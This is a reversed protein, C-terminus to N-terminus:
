NGACKGPNINHCSTLNGQPTNSLRQDTADKLNLKERQIDGYTRCSTKQIHSGTNEGRTCVLRESDSHTLIGNLHEQVNFLTVKDQMNMMSVSGSKKLLATMSDLDGSAALKDAPTIFQFKGGSEMDKRITQATAVFLDFTDAKAFDETKEACAPLFLALGLVISLFRYM